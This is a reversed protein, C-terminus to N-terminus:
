KGQLERSRRYLPAADEPRNMRDLV